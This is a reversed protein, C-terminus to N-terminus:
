SVMGLANEIVASTSCTMSVVENSASLGRTVDDGSSFDNLFKMGLNGLLGILFFAGYEWPISGGSNSETCVRRMELYQECRDRDSLFADVEKVAENEKHGLVIYKNVLEARVEAFFASSRLEDFEKDTMSTKKKSSQPPDPLIPSSSASLASVPQLSHRTLIVPRARVSFPIRLTYSVAATALFLGLQLVKRAM